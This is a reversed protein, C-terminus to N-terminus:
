FFRLFSLFPLLPIVFSLQFIVMGNSSKTAKSKGPSSNAKGKDGWFPAKEKEKKTLSRIPDRIERPWVGKRAEQVVKTDESVGGHDAIKM